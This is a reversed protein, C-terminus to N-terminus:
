GGNVLISLAIIGNEAGPVRRWALHAADVMEARQRLYGRERGTLEALMAVPDDAVALLRALDREHKRRTNRNQVSGVVRAKIVIAGM